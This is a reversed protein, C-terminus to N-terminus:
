TQQLRERLLEVVQALPVDQSQADRRGKFELTGADLGRESFVLRYPIGILEM